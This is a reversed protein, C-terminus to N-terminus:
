ADSGPGTMPTLLSESLPHGGRCVAAYDAALDQAAGRGGESGQAIGDLSDLARLGLQTGALVVPSCHLEERLVPRETVTMGRAAALKLVIQKTISDLVGSEPSLTTVSRGDVLLIAAGDAEAVHGRENLFLVHEVGHAIREREFVRFDLYTGGSKASAPIPGGFRRHSSVVARSLAPAVPNHEFGGVYMGGLSAYLTPRLYVDTGPLAAAVEALAAAVEQRSPAPIDATRASAFLRDLHARGALVRHAGRKADWFATVGEFVNAGRLAVEDWVHVRAEEWPVCGGNFWMVRDTM